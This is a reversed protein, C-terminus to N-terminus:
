AKDDNAPKPISPFFSSTSHIYKEYEEGKSKKAQSETAPVGTVRTLFYYMLVPSILGLYGYTRPLAFLAFACWVLWEFFYNPHRSYKWLGYRFVRGKNQPKSKFLYLQLDATAEGILAVAWLAVAVGEWISWGGRVQEILTRAINHEASTAAIWIPVSLAVVSLGQFLFFLFLKSPYEAGWEERLAFYRRDETDVHKFFRIALYASLRLSWLCVMATILRSRPEWGPFQLYVLAVVMFCAAWVVDVIGANRIKQAIFFTGVMIACVVILAIGLAPFSM